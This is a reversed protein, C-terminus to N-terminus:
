LTKSFTWLFVENETALLTRIIDGSTSNGIGLSQVLGVIAEGFKRGTFSDM